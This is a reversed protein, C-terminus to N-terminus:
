SRRQPVWPNVLPLQDRVITSVASLPTESGSPATTAWNYPDRDPQAHGEKKAAALLGPPLKPPPRPREGCPERSSPSASSTGADLLVLARLEPSASDAQRLSAGDTM